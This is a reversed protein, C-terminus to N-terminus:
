VSCGRCYAAYEGIPHNEPWKGGRSSRTPHPNGVAKTQSARPSRSKSSLAWGVGKQRRPCIIRCFRVAASRQASRPLAQPSTGARMGPLTLLEAGISLLRRDELVERRLRRLCPSVNERRHGQRSKWFAGHRRGALRGNM